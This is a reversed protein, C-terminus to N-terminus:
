PTGNNYHINIYEKCFQWKRGKLSRSLIEIKELLMENLEKILTSETYKENCLWLSLWVSKNVIDIHAKFEYDCIVKRPGCDFIIM